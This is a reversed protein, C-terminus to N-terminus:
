FDDMFSMKQFGCTNDIMIDTVSLSFEDKPYTTNLDPFDICFRIKRNKKLVSEISFV